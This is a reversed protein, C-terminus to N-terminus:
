AVERVLIPEIVGHTRAFNLVREVLAASLVSGKRLLVRGDGTRLDEVLEHGAALRAVSVGQVTQDRAGADWDALWQAEARFGADELADLARDLDRGKRLLRQLELAAALLRAAKREEPDTLADPELQAGVIRAVGELRPVTMLLRRAVAPHQAVAEGEAGEPTRGALYADAVETRVAILGLHAVTAAIELQWPEALDAHKLAHKVISTVATSREFAVPATLELVGALMQVAGRVTSELVERETRRVRRREIAEDLARRLEDPPCPKVLFATIGGDNIAARTAREDSQGTLLLRETDPWRRRAHALFEAGSMGPMRMDSVIVDFPPEAAELLRLGSDGAEATAVEYRGFLTRRMAALVMPEDDVCLVRPLPAGTTM